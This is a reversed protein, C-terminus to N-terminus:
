AIEALVIRGQGADITLALRDLVDACGLIYPADPQDLFASRVSLEISGIRLALVGVRASVRGPGIGDLGLVPLTDWNLGVEGALRRPVVSVEAGTDVLFRHGRYGATTRVELLIRPDVIQGFLSRKRPLPLEISTSLM